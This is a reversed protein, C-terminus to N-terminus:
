GETDLTSKRIKVEFHSDERSHSTLCVDIITNVNEAYQTANISGQQLVIKLALIAPQGETAEDELAKWNQKQTAPDKLISSRFQTHL